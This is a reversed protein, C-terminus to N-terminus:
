VCKDDDRVQDKDLLNLLIGVIPNQILHTFIMLISNWFVTIAVLYIYLAM